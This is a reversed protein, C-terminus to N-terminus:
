TRTVIATPGTTKLKMEKACMLGDGCRTSEGDAADTCDDGSALRTPATCPGNGATDTNTTSTYLGLTDLSNTAAHTVGAAPTYAESGAARGTAIVGSEDCKSDPICITWKTVADDHYVMNVACKHNVDCRLQDAGANCDMDVAIPTERATCPTVTDTTYSVGEYDSGVTVPAYANPTSCEGDPICISHTTRDVLPVELAAACHLGHDCNEPDASCDIGEATRGAV